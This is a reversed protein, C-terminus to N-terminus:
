RERKEGSRSDTVARFKARARSADASNLTVMAQGVELEMSDELTGSYGQNLAQKAYRLAVRPLQALRSAITVTEQDLKAPEVVFNVLGIELAKQATIQEGFYILEKARFLGVTRPLIHSSGGTVNLGVGVEPFGLRANSAAIILDASLAFECGAGLAYGQVAAIVPCDLAAMKRTVDQVRELRQRVSRMDVSEEEHRLDAGACFARGRGGLIVAAPDESLALDLAACLEDVLKPTVANLYRPRNLFITAIQNNLQYDVTDFTRTRGGRAM